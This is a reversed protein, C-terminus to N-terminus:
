RRCSSSGYPVAIFYAAQYDDFRLTPMAYGAIINWLGPKITVPKTKTLEKQKWKPSKQKAERKIHGEKSGNQRAGNHHAGNQKGNAESM